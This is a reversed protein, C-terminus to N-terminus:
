ELWERAGEQYSEMRLTLALATAINDRYIDFTIVSDDWAFPMRIFSLTLAASLLVASLLGSLGDSHFFQTYFIAWPFLSDMFLTVHM